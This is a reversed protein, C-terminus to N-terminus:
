VCGCVCVFVCVCVRVHRHYLQTILRESQQHTYQIFGSAGLVNNDATCNCYVPRSRSTNIDREIEKRSFPFLTFDPEAPSALLLQCESLDLLRPLRFPEPLFLLRCCLHHSKSATSLCLLPSQICGLIRFIVVSVHQHEAPIITVMNVM